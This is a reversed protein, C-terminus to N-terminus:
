GSRVRSGPARWRRGRLRRVDRAVDDGGQDPEAVGVFVTTVVVTLLTDMGMWALGVVRDHGRARLRRGPARQLRLAVAMVVPKVAPDVAM